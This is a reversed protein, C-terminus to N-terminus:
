FEPFPTSQLSSSSPHVSHLKLQSVVCCLSSSYRIETLTRLATPTIELSILLTTLTSLMSGIGSKIKTLLDIETWSNPMGICSDNTLVNKSTLAVILFVPSLAAVSTPTIRSSHPSLRSSYTIEFMSEPWNTSTTSYQFGISEPSARMDMVMSGRFEIWSNSSLLLSRTPEKETLGLGGPTSRAIRGPDIEATVTDLGIGLGSSDATIWALTSLRPECSATPTEPERSIIVSLPHSSIPFEVM